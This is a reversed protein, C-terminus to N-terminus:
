CRAETPQGTPTRAKIPTRSTTSDTTSPKTIPSRAAAAMGVSLVTVVDRAAGGPGRHVTGQTGTPVRIAGGSAADPVPRAPCPGADATRDRGVPCRPLFAPRSRLNPAPQRHPARRVPGARSLAASRSTWVRGSCSWSVPRSLTGGFTFDTNAYRPVGTVKETGSTDIPLWSRLMEEVAPEVLTPDQRLADAQDPHTLLLIVGRDIAAVTPEHGGFLLRASLLAIDDVTLEPDVATAAVLDSIVDDGPEAQKLDALPGMYQCLKRLGARARAADTLHGADDSWRRFDERDAYPVGLLECIVLAPFPFSVVEHLDVPPGHRAMADLVDAVIAVVRPRLSAMRRASFAPTLLRRTRAHEAAETSPHGIPGGSIASQSVRAAREPEAHSHGLPSGVAAGQCRRLEHSALRRRGSAHDGTPHSHEGNRRGYVM